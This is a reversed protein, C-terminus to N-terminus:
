IQTFFKMIRIIAPGLIVVLLAPFIFFVLPFILKVATKAAAEEARQRRITRLSDAFVRLSQALSTGLRETQILMAAFAKLDDVMSREGMDRLAELRPKGALTERMAIRMELALQSKKFQEDECVKVMAADMSLGAEVCVTMLDLFDPLEHFISTQRKNLKHRLWYTPALFGAITFAITLLVKTTYDKEIPIGYFILYASPFIIAFLIKSGMFIGIREKKIGAAVLKKQYKGYDQPRMPIKKGLRGLFKQWATPPQEIFAIEETSPTLSEIRKKLVTRKPLLVYFLLFLLSAAAFFVLAILGYLPM